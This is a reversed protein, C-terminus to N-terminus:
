SQEVTYGQDLLAQKFDHLTQIERGNPLAGSPDIRPPQPGWGQTEGDQSDRWQGIANFNEM